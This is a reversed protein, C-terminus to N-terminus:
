AALLHPIILQKRILIEEDSPFLARHDKKGYTFITQEKKIEIKNITAWLSDKRNNSGISFGDGIQAFCPLMEETYFIRGKWHWVQHFNVCTDKLYNYAEWEIQANKGGGTSPEYFYVNENPIDQPEELLQWQNRSIRKVNIGEMELLLRKVVKPYVGLYDVAETVSLTKREAFYDLLSVSLEALEEEENKRKRTKIIGQYDIM